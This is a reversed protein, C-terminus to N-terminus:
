SCFGRPIALKQTITSAIYVDDLKAPRYKSLLLANRAVEEAEKDRSNLNLEDKNFLIVATAKGSSNVEISYIALFDSNRTRNTCYVKDSFSSMILKAKISGSLANSSPKNTSTSKDQKKNQPRKQSTKQKNSKASEEVVMGQYADILSEFDILTQNLKPTGESAYEKLANALWKAGDLKEQSFLNLSANANIKDLSNLKKIIDQIRGIEKNTEPLKEILYIERSKELAVEWNENEIAVILSNKISEIIKNDRKKKVQKFLDQAEVNERNSNAFDKTAAFLDDILVKNNIFQNKLAKLNEDFLQKKLDEAIDQLELTMEGYGYISLANTVKLLLDEKQAQDVVQNFETIFQEIKENVEIGIEGESAEIKLESLTQNGPDGKLTENILEIASNYAGIRMFERIDALDNEFDRLFRIRALGKAIRKNNPDYPAADNFYPAAWEPKKDQYLYIEGIELLAQVEDDGQELTDYILKTAEYYQEAANGFFSDIFDIDASKRISLAKQISKLEDNPWKDIDRGLATEFIESFAGEAQLAAKREICTPSSRSCDMTFRKINNSAEQNEGFLDDSIDAFLSISIITTTLIFFLKM